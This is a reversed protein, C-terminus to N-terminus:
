RPYWRSWLIEEHCLRFAPHCGVWLTQSPIKSQDLYGALELHYQNLSTWTKGVGAVGDYLNGEDLTYLLHLAAHNRALFNDDNELDNETDTDYQQDFDFVTYVFLDDHDAIRMEYMGWNYWKENHQMAEWTLQSGQMQTECALLVRIYVDGWWGYPLDTDEGRRFSQCHKKGLLIDQSGKMRRQNHAQEKGVV